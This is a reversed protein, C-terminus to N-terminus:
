TFLELSLPPCLLSSALQIWIEIRFELFFSSIRSFNIDQEDVTECPRGFHCEVSLDFRAGIDINYTIITTVIHNREEKANHM